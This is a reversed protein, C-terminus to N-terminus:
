YVYKVKGLEYISFGWKRELFSHFTIIIVTPLQGNM